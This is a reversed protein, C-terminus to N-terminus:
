VNENNIMFQKKNICFEIDEEIESKVMFPLTVSKVNLGNRNNAEYYIELNLECEHNYMNGSRTTNIKKPLCNVDFITLIDEVAVNENINMNEIIDERASQVGVEKKTFEV